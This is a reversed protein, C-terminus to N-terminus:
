DNDERVENLLSVVDVPKAGEAIIRKNFTNVRELWDKLNFDQDPQNLQTLVREKAEHDLLQFKHIIEDELASMM